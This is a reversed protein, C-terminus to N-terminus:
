DYGTEMQTQIKRDHNGVQVATIWDMIFVTHVYIESYVVILNFKPDFLHVCVVQQYV